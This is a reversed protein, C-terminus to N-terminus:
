IECDCDALAFMRQDPSACAIRDVPVVIRLNISGDREHIKGSYDISKCDTKGLGVKIDRQQNGPRVYCTQGGGGLKAANAGVRYWHLPRTLGDTWTARVPAADLLPRGRM